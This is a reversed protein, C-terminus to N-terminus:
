RREWRLDNNLNVAMAICVLFSFLGDLVYQTTIWDDGLPQAGGALLLKAVTGIFAGGVAWKASLRNLQWTPAAAAAFMRPMPLITGLAFMAVLAIWVGTAEAARATFSTESFLILMVAKFSGWAVHGLMCVMFLRVLLLHTKREAELRQAEAGDRREVGTYPTIAPAPVYPKILRNPM